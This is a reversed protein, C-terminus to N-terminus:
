LGLKNSLETLAKNYFIDGDSLRNGYHNSPIDPVKTEEIAKKVESKAIYEIGNFTVPEYQVVFEKVETIPTTM